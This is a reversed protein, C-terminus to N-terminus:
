HPTEADDAPPVDVAPGGAAPPAGESPAPTPRAAPPPRTEPEGLLRAKMRETLGQPFRAYRRAVDWSEPPCTLFGRMSELYASTTGTLLWLPLTFVLFFGHSVTTLSGAVTWGALAGEYTRFVGLWAKRVNALPFSALRGDDYLLWVFGDGASILEGTHRSGDALLLQARAGKGSVVAEDQRPRESNPIEWGACAGGLLAIVIGVVAALQRVPPPCGRGDRTPM